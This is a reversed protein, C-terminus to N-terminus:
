INAGTSKLVYSKFFDELLFRVDSDSSELILTAIACEFGFSLIVKAGKM